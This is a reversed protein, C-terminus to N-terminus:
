LKIAEGRSDCFYEGYRRKLKVGYNVKVDPLEENLLQKVRLYLLNCGGAAIISLTAALRPNIEMLQPHGDKDFKFDLDVNGDLKLSKVIEESLCYAEENYVLTAEQPISANIINSERGVIYLTKGHDALLDVSYEKGPLYDMVLLEPFVKAEELISLMDVYSTFFSNPKEGAFIDFRSKEPDIIRIGRSGSGDKIKVCIAKQPYGISNCAEVFETMSKAVRFEPINFGHNKMYEYMKIKDNAILLGEGDSVSVKTGLSEFEGVRKQLKPLEDSIGPILVDVRDERCVDLLEDVYNEASAAPVLRVEDCMQKITPDSKMDTGIVVVGREGNNKLCRILGPASPSGAATLMIRLKKM